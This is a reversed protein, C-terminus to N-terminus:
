RVLSSAVESRHRAFHHFVQLVPSQFMAETKRKRKRKKKM